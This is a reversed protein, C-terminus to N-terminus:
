LQGVKEEISMSALKASIKQELAADAKIAPKITPWLDTAMSPLTFGALAVVHTLLSLLLNRM